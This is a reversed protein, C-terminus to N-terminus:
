MRSVIVIFFPEVPVIGTAQGNSYPVMAPPDFEGPLFRNRM